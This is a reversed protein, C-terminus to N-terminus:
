CSSQNCRCQVMAVSELDASAKCSPKSPDLTPKARNRDELNEALLKCARVIMALFKLQCAIEMGGQPLNNIDEQVQLLV